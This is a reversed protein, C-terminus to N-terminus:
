LKVGGSIIQTQENIYDKMWEVVEPENLSVGDLISKMQRTDLEFNKEDISRSYVFDRDTNMIILMTVTSCMDGLPTFDISDTKFRATFRTGENKRSFIELSGGTMEAAMKFLPIGMGVKRTTRTTYFPDMVRKVQEVSMGSGNDYIGILMENKGTDEIIEIEILTAGARVSNQAVDLINLSLEKM